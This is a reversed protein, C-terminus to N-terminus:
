NDKIQISNGNIDYVNLIAHAPVCVRLPSQEKKLDITESPTDGEASSQTTDEIYKPTDYSIHDLEGRWRIILQQEGLENIRGRSLAIVSHTTASRANPVTVNIHQMAFSLSLPMDDEESTASTGGVESQLFEDESVKMIPNPDLCVLGVPCVQYTGEIRNFGILMVVCTGRSNQGRYCEMPRDTYIVTNVYNNDRITKIIGSLESDSNTAFLFYHDARMDTDINFTMDKFSTYLPIYVQMSDRVYEQTHVASFKRLIANMRFAHERSLPLGQAKAWTIAAQVNAPLVPAFRCNQEKASVQNLQSMSGLEPVYNVITDLTSGVKVNLALKGDCALGYAIKYFHQPQRLILEDINFRVMHSYNDMITDYQTAGEFSLTVALDRCTDGQLILESGNMEVQWHLNDLDGSNRSKCGVLACVVTLMLLSLVSITAKSM